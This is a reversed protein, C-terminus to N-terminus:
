DENWIEKVRGRSGECALVRLQDGGRHDKLTDLALKHPFPSMSERLTETNLSFTEPRAPRRM